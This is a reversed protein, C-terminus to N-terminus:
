CLEALLIVSIVARPQESNTPRNELATQSVPATCLGHQVRCMAYAAEVNLELPPRMNCDAQPLPPHPNTIKMLKAELSPGLRGLFQM